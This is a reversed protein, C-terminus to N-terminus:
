FTELIDLNRKLDFEKAAVVVGDSNDTRLHIIKQYAPSEYWETLAEHSAFKIVVTVSGPEGELAASEYDAVLIEAGYAELTPLVAPVYTKYGAPNTLRFNAVLYSAM